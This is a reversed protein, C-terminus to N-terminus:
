LVRIIYNVSVNAPRTITGKRPTGNAGDSVATAKNSANTQYGTQTLFMSFPGNPSSAETFGANQQAMFYGNSGIQFDQFQDNEKTGLTGAHVIGSITQSGAGKLFVGRLDPLNFTTSGDGVGYTTGITAFLTAFTVRSIAAGNCIMFNNPATSGTFPKIEALVGTGAHVNNIKPM